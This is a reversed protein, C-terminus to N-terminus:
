NLAPQMQRNHEQFYHQSLSTQCKTMRTVAEILVWVAPPIMRETVNSENVSRTTSEARKEEAEGFPHVGFLVSVFVCSFCVSACRAWAGTFFSICVCICYIYLHILLSMCCTQSFSGMVHGEIHGVTSLWCPRTSWKNPHLHTCSPTHWHKRYKEALLCKFCANEWM